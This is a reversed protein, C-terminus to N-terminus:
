ALWILKGIRQPYYLVARMGSCGYRKKMWKVSPFIDGILFRLRHKSDISYLTRKYAVKRYELKNEQIPESIFDDPINVPNNKDLLIIDRYLRLQCIGELAHNKFHSILHKLQINKSLILAKTDGVIIELAEEFFLNEVKTRRLKLSTPGEVQEVREVEEVGEVKARRLKLSTPGEDGAGTEFLKDHIEIAYGNKYLAPLHNGVEFMIKRHLSSKILETSFGNKVLLNWAKMADEPKVLIDNDNMQRLGKAEYLTHELAMGKLLIHKIGANTLITNVEKWRETLWLNRVMSQRQGNELVTMAYSPIEKELGAEKINYAALAIIGHANILDVTKHWDKVEKLLISLRNHSEPNYPYHCLLLLLEKM